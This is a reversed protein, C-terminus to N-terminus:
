SRPPEIIIEEGGEEWERFKERLEAADMTLTPELSRMDKRLREVHAKCAADMEGALAKYRESACSVREFFGNDLSRIEFGFAIKALEHSSPSPKADIREITARIEAIEEDVSPVRYDGIGSLLQGGRVITKIEELARVHAEEERAYRQWDVDGDVAKAGFALYMEGMAQEWAILSGLIQLQKSALDVM